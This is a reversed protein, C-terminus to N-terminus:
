NLYSRLLVIVVIVGSSVFGMNFNKNKGIITAYTMSFLMVYTILFITLSTFYELKNLSLIDSIAYDIIYTLSVLGLSSLFGLLFTSDQILNIGRKKMESKM